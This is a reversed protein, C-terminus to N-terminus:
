DTTRPWREPLWCQAAWRKPPIRILVGRNAVVDWAHRDGDPGNGWLLARATGAAQIDRRVKDAGASDILKAISNEIMSDVEDTVQQHSAVLLVVQGDELVFGSFSVSGKMQVFLNSPRADDVHVEM